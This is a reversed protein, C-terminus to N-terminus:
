LRWQECNGQIASKCVFLCVSLCDFMSNFHEIEGQQSHLCVFQHCKYVPTVISDTLQDNNIWPAFLVSVYLSSPSVNDSGGKMRFM